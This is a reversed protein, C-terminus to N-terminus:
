RLPAQAIEIDRRVEATLEQWDVRGVRNTWFSPGYTGIVKEAYWKWADAATELHKVALQQHKRDRTARYLALETAGRIKAAYYRGLQSMMWIDMHTEVLEVANSRIPFTLQPYSTTVADVQAEIREAV